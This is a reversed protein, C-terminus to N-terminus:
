GYSKIFNGPCIRSTDKSFVLIEKQFLYHGMIEKINKPVTYRRGYSKPTVHDGPRVLQSHYQELIGISELTDLQTLMEHEVLFEALEFVRNENMLYRMVTVVPIAYGHMDALDYQLLAGYGKDRVLNQEALQVNKYMTFSYMPRSRDYCRGAKLTAKLKELKTGTYDIWRYVTRDYPLKLILHPDVHSLSWKSSAEELKKVAKSRQDGFSYVYELCDVVVQVSERSLPRTTIATTIATTTSQGTRNEMLSSTKLRQLLHKM